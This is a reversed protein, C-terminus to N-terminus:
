SPLARKPSGACTWMTRAKTTMMVTTAYAAARRMGSLMKERATWYANVPKEESAGRRTAARKQRPLVFHPASAEVKHDAAPTIPTATKWATTGAGGGPGGTKTHDTPPSSRRARVGPPVATSPKMGTTGITRPDARSITTTERSVGFGLGAVM